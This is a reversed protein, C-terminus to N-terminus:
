ALRNGGVRRFVRYFLAYVLPAWCLSLLLEPVAIRLLTELPASLFFLETAVRLGEGVALTGAACLLFGLLTQALAYQSLAGTVMGALTLLLVREGHGGPYAAAWILGVGLGFGAGGSVGELVGVATVAVPLLTPTVGFVPYRSLIYADSWWVPLLALTYVLWKHIWDQRTM